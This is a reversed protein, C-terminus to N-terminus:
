YDTCLLMVVQGGEVEGRREGRGDVSQSGEEAVYLIVERGGVRLGGWVVEEGIVERGGECRGRLGEGVRCLGVEVAVM